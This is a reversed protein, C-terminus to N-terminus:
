KAEKKAAEEAEKLKEEHKKENEAQVKDSAAKEVEKVTKMKAEATLEEEAVKISELAKVDISVLTFRKLKSLPRCSMITVVDGVKCENKEDHAYYRSRAKVRKGYKSHEKYTEIEVVITKNNKTSVVTGQFTSRASRIIKEKAM